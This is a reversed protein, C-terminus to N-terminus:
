SICSDLAFFRSIVRLRLVDATEVLVVMDRNLDVTLNANFDKM